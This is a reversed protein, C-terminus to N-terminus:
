RALVKAYEAVPFARIMGVVVKTSATHLIRIAQVVKDVGAGDKGLANLVRVLFDSWIQRAFYLIKYKESLSMFSASDFTSMITIFSRYEDSSLEEVEKRVTERWGAGGDVIGKLVKRSTPSCITELPILAKVLKMTDENGDQQLVHNILAGELVTPPTNVDEAKGAVVPEILQESSVATKAEAEKVSVSMEEALERYDVGLREAAEKLLLTRQVADKCMSITGLVAKTIRIKANTEDPNKEASRAARIQFQVVSEAKEDIMKGFEDKGHKLIFSDPDDGDPLSLIRIPMGEALLIQATRITAKHGAGDDDFCLLASDAVRHLMVSHDETFATGLPAVATGFGSEHLRICDIQGECVIAERNPAKVINRRAMDFAFFTRSKKFIQTEPSNIYKGSKKDEVIQRGSFAVVQGTKDRISFVLRNAFYFYPARGASDGKKVVGALALDEVTYGRRSAWALIKGVENPAYGILFRDVAGGDIRRSKLYERAPEADKCKEAKLMKNFDIALESMMAYLRKRTRSAASEVSKLEIGVSAALKRIADGFSLGEQKMVFSYVDGSEGCGFCHYTGRSVDVKFSPTKEHHFPCCCWLDAGKQRLSIGYSSVLDEISVRARIEEKQEESIAM